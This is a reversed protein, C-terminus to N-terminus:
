LYPFYRLREPVKTMVAEAFKVSAENRADFYGPGRKADDAWKELLTVLGRCVLQQNTRHEMELAQRLAERGAKDDALRRFGEIVDKAKPLSEAVHDRHRSEAACDECQGSESYSAAPYKECNWCMRESM